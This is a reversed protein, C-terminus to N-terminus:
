VARLWERERLRINYEADLCMWIQADELTEFAPTDAPPMMGVREYEMQVYQWPRIGPAEYEGGATFILAQNIQRITQAKM